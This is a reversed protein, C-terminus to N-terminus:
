GPPANNPMSCEYLAEAFRRARPTWQGRLPQRVAEEIQAQSFQQKLARWEEWTGFNFVRTIYVKAPTKAGAVWRLQGQDDSPLNM